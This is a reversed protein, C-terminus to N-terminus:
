LGRPPPPLSSGHVKDDVSLATIPKDINVPWYDSMSRYPLTVMGTDIAVLRDLGRYDVAIAWSSLFPVM